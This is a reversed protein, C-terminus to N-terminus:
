SLIATQSWRRRETPPRRRPGRLQPPGARRRTARASRQSRDLCLSRGDEDDRPNHPGDAYCRVAGCVLLDTM